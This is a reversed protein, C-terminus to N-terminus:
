RGSKDELMEGGKRAIVAEIQRAFMGLFAPLRLELRVQQDEVDIMGTITQGMARIDLMLRDGDWRSSVEAAGGPIHNKLKGVGGAIRQKAEARGLSHSLTVIVPQDM